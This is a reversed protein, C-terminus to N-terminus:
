LFLRSARYSIVSLDAATALKSKKSTLLLEKDWLDGRVRRGRVTPKEVAEQKTAAKAKDKTKDCKSTSAKPPPTSHSALYRGHENYDDEEDSQEKYSLRTRRRTSPAPTAPAAVELKSLSGESAKGKGRTARKSPSGQNSSSDNAKVDENSSRRPRKPVLETSVAEYETDACFGTHIDKRKHAQIPLDIGTRFISASGAQLAETSRNDGGLSLDANGDDEKIVKGEGDGKTIEEVGQDGQTRSSDAIEQKAENIQEGSIEQTENGAAISTSTGFKRRKSANETEDVQENVPPSDETAEHGGAVVDNLVPGTDCNEGVGLGRQGQSNSSENNAEMQKEVNTGNVEESLSAAPRRGKRTKRPSPVAAEAEKNERAKATSTRTRKRLEMNRSVGM